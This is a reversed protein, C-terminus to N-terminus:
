AHHPMSSHHCICMTLPYIDKKREHKRWAAFMGRITAAYDCVDHQQLVRPITTIYRKTDIRPVKSTIPSMHIATFTQSLQNDDIYEQYQYTITSPKRSPIRTVRQVSWMHKAEQWPRIILMHSPTRINDPQKLHEHAHLTRFGILASSPWIYVSAPTDQCCASIIHFLLAIGLSRM